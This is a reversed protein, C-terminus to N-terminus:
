PTVIVNVTGDSVRLALRAGPEADRVSHVVSGDERQAIAYGRGLVKLPSMADLAAALRAFHEREKGLAATLGHALRDRQYDLLVRRDQIYNLPSQLARSRALYELRKREEGLRRSMARSLRDSLAFLRDAVEHGDPVALEAANSPTAARLDAVFDAITVDPEHGVASIIPIASAYISRAVVEENFAWLDEM